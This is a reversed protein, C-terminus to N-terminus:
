SRGILWTLDEGKAMLEPLDYNVSTAAFDPENRFPRHIYVVRQARGDTVEVVALWYADPRNLATLIENRTVTVTPAGAVRGKVEIFRLTGTQRDRSEIDYGRRDASVDRPEHGLAREVAMVTEMAIREVTRREDSSAGEHAGATEGDDRLLGAPVVLAAGLIVPPRAFLQAERDLEAMRRRLREELEDARRRANEANLRANPKGEREQMRLEAARRDWYAIAELLRQRVARRTKAVQETRLAEVERFHEQALQGIAYAMAQKEVAARAWTQQELLPQICAREEETLPRLDLHPAYGAARPAGDPPIEVFVLRKSVVRNEGNPLVTGDCIAHELMVLVRMEQGNDHEDVLIAGERLTSGHASLILDVVADLLPHGPCLFEAAPKGPVDMLTKDFCVRAYRPLVPAGRSRERARRLVAPPVAVIEYRGKERERIQGGLHAFANCFFAAIFHPQLRRAAAREMEDRVRQLTNPDLLEGTLAHEQLLKALRARDLEQDVVQHLRARVDPREGYRVAEILLDRLRNGQFLKGLIDFVAGGLAKREAELKRLLHALVDGERTGEAVLNWLHCVERQGIRHIRGFRQELRNPNWPLDYNVMLHAARHLNIGEGAADTAILVVAAPDHCFREQAEKREERRMSGHITVVAEHQGLLNRIKEALYHLTDRHETFIVLKRRQGRADRMWHSAERNPDGALLLALEEWKRDRGSQRLRRAKEELERLVAIEAELEAVTRAATARHAIEAEVEEYDPLDDLDELDDPAEIELSPQWPSLHGDHAKRRVEQLWGELRERRRRLSQYIAEPSSALRRQLITLALGVTRRQNEQDTLRDIRNWQERVYATVAEYLEAEEPSLRYTVTYARREPFLPKGDFTVLQEKTLRRMLDDIPGLTAGRYRGEFRDPDLLSLFLQFDEEKGNHPTATMLLFHRAIRSLLKGLKFRKTEKIESGFRTAAMKHAEDVIVLDWETNALKAQAEGDRSLHDLRAILLPQEAFPNGSPAEAFSQRCLLAFRLHFKSELEDQWQEVLSGPAVILCRQVEGRLMLEKILLGAMITKGAGPDDALLFRLPQRKLMIGYVAAIQHPLPEILSTHVALLPDFLHALRIRLAEVALRFRAGDAQFSWQTDPQVPELREAQHQFLIQNGVRGSPDKYVVEVVDSGHSQVDILTVVQEPVLGRVRIGPVLEELRM